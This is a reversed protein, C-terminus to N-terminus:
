QDLFGGLYRVVNSMQILDSGNMLPEKGIMELQKQWGFQIYDPKDTNLKLRLQDM